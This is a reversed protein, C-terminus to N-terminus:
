IMCPSWVFHRKVLHVESRTSGAKLSRKKETAHQRYSVQNTPQPDMCASQYPLKTLADPSAAVCVEFLFHAQQLVCKLLPSSSAAIRVKPMQTQQFVCKSLLLPSAAVRVEPMAVQQLVCKLLPFLLPHLIMACM